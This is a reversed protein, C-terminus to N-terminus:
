SRPVSALLEGLRALDVPKLMHLDFGADASRQRDDEQGYGTVAVLTVDRFAPDARLRRAVACGDMGGPLGIDCLVVDPRARLAAEMGARGDAAVVARHGDLMLLAQLSAAADVNDEIILIDLGRQEDTGPSRAVRQQAPAPRVPLTLTFTSGQGLGRSHARVSGKHLDILGKVLALGLGLGGASRDLSDDAQSFPEFLRALMDGSIGRGDDTVAISATDDQERLEVRVCGGADTFKGANHLLNGIAQALRVPDADAWVPTDPIDLELTLGSGVQLTQRYDETTQWVIECLNVPETRLRIHGRAIRSVDLLDDTLRAMHSVQREIVQTAQRAIDGDQGVRSLIVAANRVPGLPNRLEHALVALFADKRESAERLAENARKRDTIDFNVGIMRLPKGASDHFVWGRAELWRVTGDPWLIRWETQLSGTQLSEEVRRETAEIDAPHVCARWAEYSGGFSGPPLGYIAELEPTWLNENTRINWEFTGVRAVEAAIRMREESERLRVEARKHEDIDVISGAYGLFSGQPDFRPRCAALVWRYGETRSLLRCEFRCEAWEASAAAFTRRVGAFDDPHVLDRWGYGLADNTEQGTFETWGRSLFTCSGAPETEWLIAPAADALERFSTELRKRETVDEWAAVFGDGLRNARVNIWRGIRGGDVVVELFEMERSLPVGEEVVRRYADFLGSTRHVPRLGLLTQGVLAERTTANSKCVADNVFEVLFDVIQGDTDRIASFIAFCDLLSNVSTRFREESIRLREVAARRTTLESFIGVSGVHRGDDFLPAAGALTWVESGNRHRFRWEFSRRTGRSRQEMQETAAAHDAEFAFDTALRGIMDAPRYGLMAALRDNVYVLRGDLDIEGIGDHAAEVLRRYREESMQRLAEGRRRSDEIDTATGFWCSIEGAADRWPEFRILFWRYVGDHRRLREEYEGAASASLSAAWRSRTDDLDDPHIVSEWGLGSAAEASCGTYECWRRNVFEVGGDRGAVWVLQPISDALVRFSDDVQSANLRSTRTAM